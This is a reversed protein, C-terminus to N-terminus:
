EARKMTPEFEYWPVPQRMDHLITEEHEIVLEKLLDLNLIANDLQGAYTQNNGITAMFYNMWLNYSQIERALRLFNWTYLNGFLNSKAAEEFISSNLLAVPMKRKNYKPTTVEFGGDSKLLKLDEELQQQLVSVYAAKEESSEIQIQSRYISIGIPIAILASALVSVCTKLWDQWWSNKDHFKYLVWTTGGILVLALVVSFTSNM